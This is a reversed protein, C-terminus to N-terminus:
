VVSKRYETPTVGLVSRFAASFKGPNTYGVKGAVVIVPENTNKLMLAAANMRYEKMYAYMSVGYIGKFCQKMSTIPFEFKQSLEGITYWRELNQTQLSVIDKIKDVQTKYFYPREESDAPVELTELFLLLELVKIKFYPLRVHDPIDYLESFIHDIKAGARMIFNRGGACFKEQLKRLDISFGDMVHLLSEEAEGVAFGVTVGHYHSLPFRFVGAHNKRTNIQIDGSEIYIYKNHEINWEIRGERCHDICLMEMSPSFGSLCHEMHFDNYLLYVGPFVQYFTMVGEGGTDKMQFVTCEDNECVMRINDGMEHAYPFTNGSGAIPIVM